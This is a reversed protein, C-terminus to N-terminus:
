MKSRMDSTGMAATAFIAYYHYASLSKNNLAIKTMNNNNNNYVSM